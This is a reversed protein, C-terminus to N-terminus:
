PAPYCLVEVPDAGSPCSGLSRTELVHPATVVQVVVLTVLLALGIAILQDDALTSGIQTDRWPPDDVGGIGCSYSCEV